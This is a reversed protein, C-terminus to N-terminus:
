FVNFNPRCSRMAPSDRRIFTFFFDKKWTARYLADYFDMKERGLPPTETTGKFATSSDRSSITYFPKLGFKCIIRRIFTDSRWKIEVAIYIKHKFIDIWIGHLSLRFSHLTKM